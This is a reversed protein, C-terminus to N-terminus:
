FRLFYLHFNRYYHWFDLDQTWRNCHSLSPCVSLCVSPFTPFIHYQFSQGHSTSQTDVRMGIHQIQLSQLLTLFFFIIFTKCIDKVFHYQTKPTQTSGVYICLTKEHIQILTLETKGGPHAHLCSLWRLSKLCNYFKFCAVHNCQLFHRASHISRHIPSMTKLETVCKQQAWLPVIGSDHEGRGGSKIM